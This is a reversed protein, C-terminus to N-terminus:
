LRGGPRHQHTQTLTSRPAVKSPPKTGPLAFSASAAQEQEDSAEKRIPLATRHARLSIRDQGCLGPKLSVRKRVRPGFTLAMQLLTFLSVIISLADQFRRSAEYIGQFHFERSPLATTEEIKAGGEGTRFTKPLNSEFLLTHSM